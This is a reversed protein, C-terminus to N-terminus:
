SETEPKLSYPYTEMSHARLCSFSICLRGSHLFFLSFSTHTHMWDTSSFKSVLLPTGLLQQSGHTLSPPLPLSVNYDVADRPRREGIKEEQEEEKQEEKICARREQTRNRGAM